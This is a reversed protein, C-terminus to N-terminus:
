GDKNMISDASRRRQAFKSPAPLGAPDTQPDSRTASERTERPIRTRSTQTRRQPCAPRKGNKIVHAVSSTM